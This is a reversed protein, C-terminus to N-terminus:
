QGMRRMIEEARESLVESYWSSAYQELLARMRFFTDWLEDEVEPECLTPGCARFQSGCVQSEPRLHSTSWGEM